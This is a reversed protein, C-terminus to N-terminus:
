GMLAPLGWVSLFVDDRDVGHRESLLMMLDYVREETVGHGMRALAAAVDYAGEAFLQNLLETAVDVRSAVPVLELERAAVEATQQASLM